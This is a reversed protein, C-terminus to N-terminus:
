KIFEKAVNLKNTNKLIYDKVTKQATEEVEKFSTNLTKMLGPFMNYTKYKQAFSKRDEGFKNFYLNRLDKYEQVMHNFKHDVIEQINRIQKYKESEPILMSLVDDIEDNLIIEIIQNERLESIVGHRKLYWDTKIKAMQGDEFTVVWGEIDKDTEKLKLLSDLPTMEAFGVPPYDQALDVMFSKCISIMYDKNFYDGTESDRIQLLVLNTKSYELVVQNFPSTLEFIPVHGREIETNILVRVNQNTNYIEQAMQAQESDFSMKSKSRISGDPFKVFTILSGDEKNQIRQVKKDKLDNYNWGEVENVNFFKNLVINREWENTETNYVFTLGRLEFANNNKFDSISALRYNYIEVKYGHIETETLYFAESNQVIQKCENRTPLYFKM